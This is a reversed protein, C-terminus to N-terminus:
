KESFWLNAMVTIFLTLFVIGLFSEVIYAFQYLGGMVQLYHSNAGNTFFAGTSLILGDPYGIRTVFLVTFFIYLIVMQMFVRLPRIGYGAVIELFYNGLKEVPDDLNYRTIAQRELFYYSRQKDIVNGSLYAEKLGKYIEALETRNFIVPKKPSHSEAIPHNIKTREDFRCSHFISMEVFCKKLLTHNFRCNRFDQRDLFDCNIFTINDLRCAYFTSGLFTCNIFTVNHFTVFNFIMKPFTVGEFKTNSIYGYSLNAGSLANPHLDTIEEADIYLGRLDKEDELIKLKKDRFDKQLFYEDSGNRLFQLIHNKALVGDKSKWRDQYQKSKEDSNQPLLYISTYM